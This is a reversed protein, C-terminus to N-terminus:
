SFSEKCLVESFFVRIAAMRLSLFFRCCYQKEVHSLITHQLFHHNTLFTWYIHSIHCSRFYLITSLLQSYLLLCTCSRCKRPGFSLDNQRQPQYPAPNQSLLLLFHVLLQPLSPHSWSHKLWPWKVHDDMEQRSGRLETVSVRNRARGQQDKEPDLYQSSKTSQHEWGWMWNYTWVDCYNRYMCILEIGLSCQYTWNTGFDLLILRPVWSICDATYYQVTIYDFYYVFLLCFFYVNKVLHNMAKFLITTCYLLQSSCRADLSCVSLTVSSTPSSTPSSLASPDDAIPSLRCAAVESMGSVSPMPEPEKGSPTAHECKQFNVDQLSWHLPSVTNLKSHLMRSM